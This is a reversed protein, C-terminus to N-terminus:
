ECAGRLARVHARGSHIATCTDVCGPFPPPPMGPSLEELCEIWRSEDKAPCNPPVM